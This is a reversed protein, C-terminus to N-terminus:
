QYELCLAWFAAICAGISLAARQVTLLPHRLGRPARQYALTHIQTMYGSHLAPILLGVTSIRKWSRRASVVTYRSWDRLMGLRRFKMLSAKM